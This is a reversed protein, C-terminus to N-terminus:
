AQMATTRMAALAWRLNEGTRAITSSTTDAAASYTLKGGAKLEADGGAKLSAGELILDGGARM